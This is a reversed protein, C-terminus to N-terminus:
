TAHSNDDKLIERVFTMQKDLSQKVQKEGPVGTEEVLLVSQWSLVSINNFTANFVMIRVRADLSTM